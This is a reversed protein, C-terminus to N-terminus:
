KAARVASNLALANITAHAFTSGWLNDTLEALGGLLTGAIFTFTCIRCNLRWGGSKQFHAVSFLASTEFVRYIKSSNADPEKQFVPLIEKQLFFRFLVEEVIPACICNRLFISRWAIPNTRISNISSDVESQMITPKFLRDIFQDSSSAVAGLASGYALGQVCTYSNLPYMEKVLPYSNSDKFFTNVPGLFYNTSM